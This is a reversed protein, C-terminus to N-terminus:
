FQWRMAASGPGVHVTPMYRGASTAKMRALITEDMFLGTLFFAAGANQVLGNAVLAVTFLGKTHAVGIAVFPGALPILLPEGWGVYDAAGAVAGGAIASPLYTSSFAVAGTILLGRTARRRIEYGLPIPQGEQYPM